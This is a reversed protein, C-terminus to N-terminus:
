RIAQYVNHYNEIMQARSFNQLAYNYGNSVTDLHKEQRILSIVDILKNEFDKDSGDYVFGNIRDKIFSDSNAGESVLCLCKSLLAEFLVNPCGEYFSPLLFLDFLRYYEQIDEQAELLISEEMLNKTIYKKIVRAEVNDSDGILYIKFSLGIENKIKNLVRLAQIQNKQFTLRGVIGITLNKKMKKEDGFFKKTDYGNYIVFNNKLVSKSPNTYLQTFSKKSNYINISFRNLLRDSFFYLKSVSEYSNRISYIIKGIFRNPAVLRIVLGNFFLYTHLIDFSKNKLKKRLFLINNIWKFFFYKNPKDKNLILDIDLELIENYFIQDSQYLIFTVKYEKQLLGKILELIQREAGGQPFHSAIFCIKIPTKKILKSSM